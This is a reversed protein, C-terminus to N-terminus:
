ILAVSFDEKFEEFLTLSEMDKIINSFQNRLEILLQQYEKQDIVESRIEIEWKGLTRIAWIVKPHMACFSFLGKELDKTVNHLTILTKYSKYNCKDSNIFISFNQIVRKDLNKKIRLAITSAPVKIIKSLEINSIEAKTCIIKLIKKDIDDLKILLPEGGFSIRSKELKKGVLFGRKYKFVDTRISIDYNILNDPFKNIIESIIKNFHWMNRAPIVLSLDYKGGISALYLVKDHKKLFGTIENIEKQNVNQLKFYVGFATLGLKSINLTTQFQKIIGRKVLNKIRYNVVQKSLKVRKGIKSDPIRSNQDLEYLIKRDKLDLKGNMNKNYVYITYLYQPKVFYDSLCKIDLM